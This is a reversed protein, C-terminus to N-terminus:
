NRRRRAVLLGGLGLLAISGPEPVPDGGGFLVEALGSGGASGHNTITQIKVLRANDLLSSNTVSSLDLSFGTYSSSQPGIAFLFDGTGNDTAGAGSTVLKVLNATNDDPSVWISADKLGRNFGGNNENENWIHITDLGYNDGLDFTVFAGASIGSFWHDLWTTSHTAGFDTSSLGTSSGGILDSVTMNPNGVSGDSDAISVGSIVAADATSATLLAAATLSLTTKFQSQM